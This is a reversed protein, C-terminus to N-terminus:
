WRVQMQVVLRDNSVSPGEESFVGYSAQVKFDDGKFFYQVGATYGTEADLPASSPDFREVRGVLQVREPVVTYSALGYWGNLHDASGSLDRQLWEGRITWAGRHVMVAANWWTSDPYAAAAGSLDVGDVPTATVRGIYAMKKDPNSAHNPGEGNYVGGQLDLARAPRWELAAGIDRNPANDGVVVSRDALPLTSSGMIAELSLPVKAQGITAAWHGRALAVFLDTAAVTSPTGNLGLNRLEVQARFRAWPTVDGQVAVRARRMFFLASDGVSEFRPQIYGTVRAQASLRVPPGVTLLVAAVLVGVARMGDSM